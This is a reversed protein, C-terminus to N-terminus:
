CAINFIQRFLEMKVLKQLEVSVFSPSGGHHPLEGVATGSHLLGKDRHSGTM